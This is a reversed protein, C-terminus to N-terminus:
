KVIFCYSGSGCELVAREQTLGLVKIGDGGNLEGAKYVIEGNETISEGMLPLYVQARSGCPIKLSFRIEGNVREWGSILEGRVTDVSACARDLSVPLYPKIIIQEYGSGAKPVIGALYKYFWASVSAYMPHNHSNMGWTTAYEWREWITTAGHEVMYGWSPYSTQSLLKYAVDVYGYQTLVEPLYKTCLNGTTLHYDRNIVDQALKSAVEQERGSPILGMYLAIANCGQSNTGVCGQAEDFFEKIFAAKVCEARRAFDDADAQMGLIEAFEQMLSLDYYLYATSILEGPTVSSIADCMQRTTFEKPGAWDGWYSYELIGGRSQRYLFDTWKKMGNYQRQLSRRNAYHDYIGKSVLLYSAVCPDAPRQGRKLPATDPIAGSIPEQADTIDQAWKEYIHVMNFNYVAEEYRATMDNLWGMREDRQPCDTPISHLNTQEGWLINEQIKNILQNGCEFRGIGEVSSRVVCAEFMDMDPERLLGTVQIYRFGHYTFHAEFSQFGGKLRYVDTQMAISSGYNEAAKLYDQNITGDEHLIESYGIMVFQDKVGEIKMSAWGSINQGFDIVYIGEKPSTIKQAKLREVVRIPEIPQAQLKGGPAEAELCYYSKHLTDSYEPDEESGPWPMFNAYVEWGKRPHEKIIDPNVRCWGEVEFRYDYHEGSYINNYTIPGTFMDWSVPQTCLSFESGDAYVVYMQLIFEPHKHWGMGLMVGICNEGKVLAETVDYTVYFVRESYNTYGPDLVNVGQKLGNLYLEYYGLGAVYVRASEIEKELTFERRILQSPGVCPMGIWCGQWEDMSMLATEFWATESLVGCSGEADYLLVSWYYRTRSKLPLGRYEISTCQTSAIKGSDWIEGRGSAAELPSLSVFIRYASQFAGRGAQCIQWSLRPFPEDIGLPNTFYECKLKIAQIKDM